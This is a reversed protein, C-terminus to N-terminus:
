GRSLGLQLFMSRHFGIFHGLVLEHKGDSFALKDRVNSIKDIFKTQARICHIEQWLLPTLLMLPVQM